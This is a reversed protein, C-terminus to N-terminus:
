VEKGETRTEDSLSGDERRQFPEIQPEWQQSHDGAIQKWPHSPRTEIEASAGHYNEHGRIAGTAYQELHSPERSCYLNTPTQM